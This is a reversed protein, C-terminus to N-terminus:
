DSWHDVSALVKRWESKHSLVKDGRQGCHAAASSWRYDEAKDALGVRISNREVYRIAALLYADDLPSSFFRGQWFFSLFIITIFDLTKLFILVKFFVRSMVIM